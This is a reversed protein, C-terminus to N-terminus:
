LQFLVPSSLERARQVIFSPIRFLFSSSSSSSSILGRLLLAINDTNGDWEGSRRIPIKEGRPVIKFPSLSLSFSLYLSLSLFLSLSLSPFFEKTSPNPTVRSVCMCVLEITIYNRTLSLRPPKRRTTKSIHSFLSESVERTMSRSWLVSALRRARRCVCLCCM